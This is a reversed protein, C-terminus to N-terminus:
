LEHPLRPQPPETARPIPLCVTFSAGVGPETGVTIEGGHETVIQQAISLGLGTGRPKTTVFLQFVDIGEPLGPGNDRVVLCAKGEVVGDEVVVLGGGPMAEIANRVLNIVVQKIKEVDMPVSPIPTGLGQRRLTVGAARAEPRLLRVVEDLLSEINAPRYQITNARSFLLFDSVLSDLRKVEQRIIDTLDRIKVALSPELSSTRRELLSLQLAISNLPNRVEHALGSAFTGLVAMKENRIIRAQASKLEEYSRRAEEYLRVNELAVSAQAALAEAVEVQESTWEHAVTRSLMLVGLTRERALLPVMVVSADGWREAVSRNIRQDTRWDNVAFARRVEFVLTTLTAGLGVLDLDQGQELGFQPLGSLHAVELHRPDSGLFIRVRDAGLVDRATEGVAELVARADLSGGIAKNIAAMARAEQNRLRELHLHRAREMALCVQHGLTELFRLQSDSFSEGRRAAVNLVGHAGGDVRLPICAHTTSAGVESVIQPMRPCDGTNHTSMPHGSVFVRPCLCDGLGEREVSELYDPALGRHAALRLRRGGEEALLVWGAPLGLQDLIEELAIELVEQADECRLIREAVRALATLERERQELTKRLASPGTRRV